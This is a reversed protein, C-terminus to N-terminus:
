NTSNNELLPCRKQSGWYLCQYSSLGLHGPTNLGLSKGSSFVFAFETETCSSIGMPVFQRTVKLSGKVIFQAFRMSFKFSHIKIFVCDEVLTM